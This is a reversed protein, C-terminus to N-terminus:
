SAAEESENAAGAPEATPLTSTTFVVYDNVLVDYTNLQGASLVHVEPLNRFSKQTVVDDHEVVVLVRGTVGLATLAAKAEKTVAPADRNKQKHPHIHAHTLPRHTTTALERANRKRSVSWLSVARGRVRM